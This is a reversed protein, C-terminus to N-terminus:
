CSAELVVFPGACSAAQISPGTFFLGQVGPGWCSSASTSFSPGVLPRDPSELGMLLLGIQLLGQEILPRLMKGRLFRQSTLFSGPRSPPVASFTVRSRVVLRLVAGALPSTKLCTAARTTVQRGNRARGVPRADERQAPAM